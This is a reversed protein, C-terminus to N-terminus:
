VRPRHDPREPASIGLRQELALRRPAEPADGPDSLALQHLQVRRVPKVVQAREGAVVELSETSISTTLVADPDVVLIPDAENPLVAVSLLDFHHVVV